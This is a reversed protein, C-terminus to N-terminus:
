LLGRVLVVRQTSDDRQEFHVFREDPSVDSRMISPVEVLPIMQKSEADFRAIALAQGSAKRVLVPFYLFRSGLAFESISESDLLHEVRGGAIPM